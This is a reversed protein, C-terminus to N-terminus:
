LAHQRARGAAIRTAIQKQAFIWAEKKDCSGGYGVYGNGVFSSVISLQYNLAADSSRRSTTLLSGAQNNFFWEHEIPTYRSVGQERQAKESCGSIVYAIATGM